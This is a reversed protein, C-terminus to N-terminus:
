TWYIHSGNESDFTAFMALRSFASDTLSFSVTCVKQGFPKCRRLMQEQRWNCVTLLYDPASGVSALRNGDRLQQTLRARYWEVVRSFSDITPLQPLIVVAVYKRAPHAALSKIVIPVLLLLKPGLRTYSSVTVLRSLCCVIMSGWKCFARFNASFTVKNFIRTYLQDHMAQVLDLVPVSSFSDKLDRNKKAEFVKELLPAMEFQLKAAELPGVLNLRTAASIMDRTVMFLYMRQTLEAEMGLLACLVGLVLAHHIGEHKQQKAEKRIALLTEVRPYTPVYARLALRLLASGQAFSAKRSVHNSFLATISSNLSVASKVLESDSAVIQHSTYVLPLAVNASQYLLVSLFQRLKPADVFGEQTAAELGYSHAFGGTPYLSDIMQWLVWDGSM